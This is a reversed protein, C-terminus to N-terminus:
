HVEIQLTDQDSLGITDIRSSILGQNYYRTELIAEKSLYFSYPHYFYQAVSTTGYLNFNLYYPEFNPEPLKISVMVTDNGPLSDNQVVHLALYNTKEVYITELDADDNAYNFIRRYSLNGILIRFANEIYADVPKLNKFYFYGNADTRCSDLLPYNAMSNTTSQHQALSYDWSEPTLASEVDNASYSLYVMMNPVPKGNSFQLVRAYLDRQSDKGTKFQCSFFTLSGLLLFSIIKIRQQTM